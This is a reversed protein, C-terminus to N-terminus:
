VGLFCFLLRFGARGFIKLDFSLGYFFGGFGVALSAARGLNLELSATRWAKMTQSAAVV